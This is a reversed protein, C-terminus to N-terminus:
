GWLCTFAMAKCTKTVLQLVKVIQRSNVVNKVACGGIWKKGDDAQVITERMELINEFHKQWRSAFIHLM